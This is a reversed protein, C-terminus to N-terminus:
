SNLNFPFVPEPIAKLERVAKDAQRQITGIFASKRISVNGITSAPFETLSPPTYKSIARLAAEMSKCNAKYIDETWLFGRVIDQVEYKTYYRSMAQAYQKREEYKIKECDPSISPASEPIESEPIGKSLSDLCEKALSKMYEKANAENYICGEGGLAIGGKMGKWSGIEELTDKMKLFEAEKEKEKEEKLVKEIEDFFVADAELERIKREEETNTPCATATVPTGTTEMICENFNWEKEVRELEAQAYYIIKRLDRERGSHEVEGYRYCARFIEGMQANMDKYSILDQLQTAKSPLEYYSATSGDSTIVAKGKDTTKSTNTSM